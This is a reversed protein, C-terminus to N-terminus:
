ACARWFEGGSLTYEGSVTRTCDNFVMKGVWHITKPRRITLRDYVAGDAMRRDIARCLHEEHEPMM